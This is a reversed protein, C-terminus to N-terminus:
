LAKQQRLGQQALVPLEPGLGLQGQRVPVL